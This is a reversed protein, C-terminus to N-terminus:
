ARTEEWSKLSVRRVSRYTVRKVRGPDLVKQLVEIPRRERRKDSSDRKSVQGISNWREVYAEPRTGGRKSILRVM